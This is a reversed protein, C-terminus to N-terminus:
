AGEQVATFDFDAVVLYLVGDAGENHAALALQEGISRLTRLGAIDDVGEHFGGLGVTQPQLVINEM